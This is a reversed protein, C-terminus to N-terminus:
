NLNIQRIWSILHYIRQFFNNLIQFNYSRSRPTTDLTESQESLGAFNYGIAYVEHVGSGTWTYKYPEEDITFILEDDLYFEVREVNSIDDNCTATFTIQNNGGIKKNLNITPPTQDIKFEISPEEYYEGEVDIWYWQISYVGDDSVIFADIYLHWDGNLNYYIEDVYKPDYRFSISVDGIYWFNEGMIGFINPIPEQGINLPSSFISVGTASM